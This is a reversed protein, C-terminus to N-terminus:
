NQAVETVEAHQLMHNGVWQALVDEPVKALVVELDVTSGKRDVTYTVKKGPKMQKKAAHLAEKNMDNNLEIGNLAVLQDGERFGAKEAPSGPVVRTVQMTGGKKNKDLEIGAWGHNKLKAAMKNLCEQTPATCTHGKGAMAPVALAVVAILSLLLSTKRM